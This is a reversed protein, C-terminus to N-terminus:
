RKAESNGSLEWMKRYEESSSLLEDHRGQAIVRGDDILAINDANVITSLRHAVIILTKNRASVSLAQQIAAENEPDSSSTAEDMILVPANKIMARVIAIRQREGGSLMDGASGALTQYGDPLARIFEDCGAAVAAAVVEEDTADPRGVRINEMISINYLFTDQDVYAILKNLEDQSYETIDKGGIDIRGSKKDWYGAILKAVTSKGSGSPGVLALMSGEKIDLDIDKIVDPGDSAYSFCVNKLSIDRSGTIKEDGRVLEKYDLIERIEGAVAGMSAFSDTYSMAKYVPAFIGLALLILMFLSSADLTQNRVFILGSILVPFVSYPTVALTLTSYMLTDKQWTLSNDTHGKIADEFRRFSDATRNYNKIVEIGGVYEVIAQNMNKEADTYSKFREEYDKMMGGSLCLGAVFWVLMCLAVRWDIVFSWVIMALPILINATMEPLLHALTKEVSEVREVITTKLRGTGKEEFYGLPIRMMKDTLALRIDRLTKYAASHSVWTSINILVGYLIKLIAAILVLGVIDEVKVAGGFIKGAIKGVAAYSLMNCFVGLM